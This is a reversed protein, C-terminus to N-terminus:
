ATQMRAVVICGHHIRYYPRVESSALFKLVQWLIVAPIFKGALHIEGDLCPELWNSEIHITYCSNDAQLMAAAAMMWGTYHPESCGICADVNLHRPKAKKWVAAIFKLSRKLLASDGIAERLLSPSSKQKDRASSARRASSSSKKKSRFVVPRNFILLESGMKGIRRKAEIALFFNRCLVNFQVGPQQGSLSIEYTLPMILCILLLLIAIAAVTLLIKLALLM